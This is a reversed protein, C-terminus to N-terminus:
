EAVFNEINQETKTQPTVTQSKSHKQYIKRLYGDVTKEAEFLSNEGKFNYRVQADLLRVFREFKEKSEEHCLEQAIQEM